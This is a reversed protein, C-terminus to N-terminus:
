LRILRLFKNDETFQIEFKGEVGSHEVFPQLESVPFRLNIGDESRVAVFKVSGSYYSQIQEATLNLYFRLTLM